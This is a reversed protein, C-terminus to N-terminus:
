ILFSYNNEDFFKVNLNGLINYVIGAEHFPLKKYYPSYKETATIIHKKMIASIQKMDVRIKKIAQSLSIKNYKILWNIYIVLGYDCLFRTEDLIILNKMQNVDFSTIESVSKSTEQNDQHNNGFKDLNYNFYHVFDNLVDPKRMFALYFEKDKPVRFIWETFFFDIFEKLIVKTIDIIDSLDDKIRRWQEIALPISWKWTEYPCSVKFKQKIYLVFDRDSWIAIEDIARVRSQKKRLFPKSCGKEVNIIEVGDSKQIKKCSM